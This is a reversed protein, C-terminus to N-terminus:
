NNLEAVISTTLEKNFQHPNVLLSTDIFNLPINDKLFYVHIPNEKLARSIQAKLINGKDHMNASYNYTNVLIRTIDSDNTIICSSKKDFVSIYLATAVLQEDTHFDEAPPRFDLYLSDFNIKAGTEKAVRLVLEYLINFGKTYEPKLVSNSAIKIIQIYQFCIDQLLKKNIERYGDSDKMIKKRTKKIARKEFSNLYILKERVLEKIRKIERVVRETTFVNPHSFWNFLNQLAIQQNCLVDKNIESFLSIDYVDEQYWSTAYLGTDTLILPEEALIDDLAVPENIGKCEM